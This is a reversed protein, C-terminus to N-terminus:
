PRRAGSGAAEDLLEGAHQRATASDPQGSLM